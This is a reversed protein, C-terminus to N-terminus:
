GLGAKMRSTDIGATADDMMPMPLGHMSCRAIVDVRARTIAQEETSAHVRIRDLVIGGSRFTVVMPFERPKNWVVKGRDPGNLIVTTAM